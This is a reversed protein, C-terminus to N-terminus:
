YGYTTTPQKESERKQASILLAIAVTGIGAWFWKSRYFKNDNTGQSPMPVPLSVHSGATLADHSSVPRPNVAAEKGRECDLSFFPRSNALDRAPAALRYAGCDGHVWATEKPRFTQLARSPLIMTQPQWVNSLLTLRVPTESPPYSPCNGPTCRRGNILLAHWGNKLLVEPNARPNRNRVERWRELLPPPFLTRDPTLDDGWYVARALWEDRATESKEIQALRLLAHLFLERSGPNWDDEHELELVAIFAARAQEAPDKLFARQAEAFRNLLREQQLPSPHTREYHRVVSQNSPNARLVAQYEVDSADPSQLLM